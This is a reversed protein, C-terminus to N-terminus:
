RPRATTGREILELPLLVREPARDRTGDVLDIATEVAWEGMAAHPLRFTTLGPVLHAALAEQDDVGVISLDDPVSLGLQGAALLVGLAVRDNIAFVATPRETARRLAGTGDTLCRLATAHGDDINWGAVHITGRADPLGAEDLGARFGAERLPGAINGRVWGQDDEADPGSLMVIRRHGLGTLLRAADRGVGVEDPIAAPLVDPEQFCNALVTPLTTTPTGAIRRLGMTAYILADVRRAGLEHAAAQERDAHFDSDYLMLAHGLEALRQGAAAVLRGAFPSSAIGDTILGIARTRSQRLSQAVRNPRYGLTQAADLIRQRTAPAINGADKGSFVFSVATPSVGALEAVDAIRARAPTM